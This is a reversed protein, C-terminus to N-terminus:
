TVADEKRKGKSVSVGNNYICKRNEATFHM